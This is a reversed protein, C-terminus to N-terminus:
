AACSTKHDRPLPNGLKFLACNTNLELGKGSLLNEFTLITSLHTLYGVIQFFGSERKEKRYKEQKIFGGVTQFWGEGPISM